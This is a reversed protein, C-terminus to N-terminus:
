RGAAECAAVIVRAPVGGPVAVQWGDKDSHLCCDRHENPSGLVLDGTRRLLWREPDEEWGRALLVRRVDLRRGM